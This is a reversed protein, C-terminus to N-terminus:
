RIFFNDADKSLFFTQAFIKVQLAIWKVAVQSEKPPAENTYHPEYIFHTWGRNKCLGVIWVFLRKKIFQWGFSVSASTSSSQLSSFLIIEFFRRRIKLTMNWTWDQDVMMNPWRFILSLLLIYLLLQFEYVCCCYPHRCIHCNHNAVCQDSMEMIQYENLTVSVLEDHCHWNLICNPHRIQDSMIILGTMNGYQRM